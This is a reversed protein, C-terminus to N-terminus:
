VCRLNPPYLPQLDADDIVDQEYIPFQYTELTTKHHVTVDLIGTEPVPVSIEYICDDERDVYSRFRLGILGQGNIHYHCDAGLIECSFEWESYQYPMVLDLTWIPVGQWEDRYAAIPFVRLQHHRARLEPVLKKTHLFQRRFRGEEREEREVANRQWTRVAEENRHKEIVENDIAFYDKTLTLTPDYNSTVFNVQMHSWESRYFLREHLRRCYEYGAVRLDTIGVWLLHYDDHYGTVPHSGFCFNDNHREDCLPWALSELYDVTTRLIERGFDDSRQLKAARSWSHKRIGAMPPIALESAVVDLPITQGIGPIREYNGCPPWYVDPPRLRRSEM